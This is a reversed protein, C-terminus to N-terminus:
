AIRTAIVEGNLTIYVVAIDRLTGEYFQVEVTYDAPTLDPIYKVFQQVINDQIQGSSLRTNWVLRELDAGFDPDGLMEGKNTFLILEIMAVLVDNPQTNEVVGQRYNPHGDYRIYIDAVNAPTRETSKHYTRM